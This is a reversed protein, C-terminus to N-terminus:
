KDPDHVIKLRDPQVVAPAVAVKVLQYWSCCRAAWDRAETETQFHPELMDTEGNSRIIVVVWREINV